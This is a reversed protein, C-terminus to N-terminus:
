IDDNSHAEVIHKFDQVSDCLQKIKKSLAQLKKNAVEDDINQRELFSQISEKSKSLADAIKQTEEIENKLLEIGTPNKVTVSM